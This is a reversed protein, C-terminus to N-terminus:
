EAEIPVPRPAAQPKEPSGRFALPTATVGAAPTRSGNESDAKVTAEPTLQSPLGSSTPKQEDPADKMDIDHTNKDENAPSLIGAPTLGRLKSGPVTLKVVLSRDGQVDLDEELFEEEDYDEEDDDNSEDPVHEDDGEEDGHDPESAENEDDDGMSDGNRSGWGNAAHARTAARTPRGNPRASEERGSGGSVDGQVSEGDPGLRTPARVQRGSMTTVQETPTNTGTNRASRRASFDSFM